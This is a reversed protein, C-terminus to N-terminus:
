VERGAVGVLVSQGGQGWHTLRALHASKTSKAGKTTTAACENPPLARATTTFAQHEQPKMTRDPGKV